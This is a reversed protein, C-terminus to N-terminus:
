QASPGPPPRTTPARRTTLLALVVMAVCGLGFLDGVRTYLSRGPGQALETVLVAEALPPTRAAVSGWADVVASPGSDSIRVLPTRTEVARMRAIQFQHAAFGADSVWADNSPNVLVRAGDAVRRAALHPLYAENCLLVAAPGARTPLLPRPEGPSFERLRGFRRRLLDVRLPFYEMFPLLHRKDYRGTVEGAEDILFASNLFRESPNTERAMAGVVLEAGREALVAGIGRRYLTEEELFLPLAAEPWFILEPRGDIERTLRLYMDLSKAAGGPAWRGAADLAPQVLAVSISPGAPATSALSFGGWALSAVVAAGAAAVGRWASSTRFVLVGALAANVAAVLFSLGYVGTLSAIQALPLWDVQSYGLTAWPSSGLYFWEGNLLRGRALEAAAWAAGVLLPGRSGGLAQLRPMVLAFVAYYPAAMLGAVGLFVGLGVLWPQDLYHAVAGPMWIGVGWGAAISWAAGWGARALPRAERLALFLPVLALWALSEIALPPFACAYLAASAVVLGARQGTTV